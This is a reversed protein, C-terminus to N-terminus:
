TGKEEGMATSVMDIARNMNEILQDRVKGKPLANIRHVLQALDPSLGRPDIYLKTALSITSENLAFGSMM